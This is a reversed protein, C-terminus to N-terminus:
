WPRDELSTDGADFAAALARWTPHKPGAKQYRACWRNFRGADPYVDPHKSWCWACLGWGYLEFPDMWEWEGCRLCRLRLTEPAKGTAEGM